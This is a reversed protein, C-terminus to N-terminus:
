EAGSFKDSLADTVMQVISSSDIKKQWKVESM